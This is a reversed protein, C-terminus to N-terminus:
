FCLLNVQQCIADSFSFSNVLSKRATLTFALVDSPPDGWCKMVWTRNAKYFSSLSLFLVSVSFCLFPLFAVGYSQTLTNVQLLACNLEPGSLALTHNNSCVALADVPSLFFFFFDKWGGQLGWFFWHHWGACDADGCSVRWAILIGSTFSESARCQRVLCTGQCLLLLTNTACMVYWQYSRAMGWM